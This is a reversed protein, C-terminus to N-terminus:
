VCDGVFEGDCFWLCVCCVFMQVYFTNLGVKIAYFIGGSRIRAVLISSLKCSCPNEWGDASLKIKMFIPSKNTKKTCRQVRLSYFRKFVRKIVACSVWLIDLVQYITSPCDRVM